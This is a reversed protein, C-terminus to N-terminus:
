ELSALCAARVQDRRFGSGYPKRGVKSSVLMDSEGLAQGILMENRTEHYREATDIWTIGADQAAAIVRKARPLDPQEGEEPGLEFGGLGLHSVAVGSQGLTVTKM